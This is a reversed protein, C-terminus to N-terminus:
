GMNKKNSIYEKFFQAKAEPMIRQLKTRMSELFGEKEKKEELEAIVQNLAEEIKNENTPKLLYHKVNHAM